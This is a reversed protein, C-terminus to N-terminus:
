SGVPGPPDDLARRVRGALEHGRWPKHLLDPNPGSEAVAQGSTHLVRLGPHLARARQALERGSLGGPLVRDTLLLDFPEEDTLTALADPGTARTVIRYGLSTLQRSLGARVM